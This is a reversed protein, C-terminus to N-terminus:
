RYGKLYGGKRNAINPGHEMYEAKSIWCNHFSGLSSVISAGIWSAHRAAAKSHFPIFKFRSGSLFSEQPTKAAARTLEALLREQLGTTLVVGGVLVVQGFIDRRYITNDKLMDECMPVLGKFNNNYKHLIHPNFLIECSLGVLQFPTMKNMDISKADFPKDTLIAKNKTLSRLKSEEETVDFHIGDPLRRTTALICTYGDSHWSEGALSEPNLFLPVASVKMISEKLSKVDHHLNFVGLSMVKSYPRRSIEVVDADTIKMLSSVGLNYEPHNMLYTFNARDTRLLLNLLATDVHDGGINYEKYGLVDDDVLATISTTASGVDVVVSNLSGAAYSALQSGHGFHVGPAGLEEFLLETQVMRNYRTTENSEVVFIPSAGTLESLGPSVSNFSYMNKLVEAASRKSPDTFKANGVEPVMCNSFEDWCDKDYKHAGVLLSVEELDESRQARKLREIMVKDHVRGSLAGRISRIYSNKNIFSVNKGLDYYKVHEVMQVKYRASPIVPFVECDEGIGVSSPWLQSPYPEGAKGCRIVSHGVDIVVAGVYQGTWNM